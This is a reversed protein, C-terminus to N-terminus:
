AANCICSCRVPGLGPGRSGAYARHPTTSRLCYRAIAFLSDQDPQVANGRARPKLETNQAVTPPEDDRDLNGVLLGRRRLYRGGSVPPTAPTEQRDATPWLSGKPPLALLPLFMGIAARSLICKTLPKRGRFVARLLLGPNGIDNTSLSRSDSQM